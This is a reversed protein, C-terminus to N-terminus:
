YMALLLITALAIFIGVKNILSMKEKFFVIGIIASLGVVSVNFIPFFVASEFFGMAKFMTLASFFNLIGLSFGGIITNLKLKEKNAISKSGFIVLGFLFAISFLSAMFLIEYNLDVESSKFHIERIYKLLSDNIGSFFFILVPFLIKKFDIDESKDKKFILYFSAIALLLGVIKILSLNEYEYMYAGFFVPIVVSMKSATATIAMGVKQTSYAFLLFSFMFLAGLFISPIFWTQEPIDTISLKGQYVIFAFISATLYNIIIAQSNNVEFKEFLRFLIFISVFLVTASILLVIGM